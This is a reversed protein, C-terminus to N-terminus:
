RIAALHSAGGAKFAVIGDQVGLTSALPASKGPVAATAYDSSELIGAASIVPIVPIVPIVTPSGPPQRARGM